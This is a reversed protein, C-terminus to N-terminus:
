KGEGFSSGSLVTFKRQQADDLIGPHSDTRYMAFIRICTLGSHILKSRADTDHGSHLCNRLILRSAPAM